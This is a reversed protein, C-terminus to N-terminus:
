PAEDARCEVGRAGVEGHVPVDQLEHVVPPFAGARALGDTFHEVVTPHDAGHVVDLRDADGHRLISVLGDSALLHAPPELVQAEGLLPEVLKAHPAEDMRDLHGALVVLAGPGDHELLPIAAAPSRDRTPDWDHAVYDARLELCDRGLVAPLEPVRHAIAGLLLSRP